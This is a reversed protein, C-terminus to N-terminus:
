LTQSKGLLHQPIKLCFTAGGLQKGLDCGGQHCMAKPHPANRWPRPEPELGPWIHLGGLQPDQPPRQDSSLNM